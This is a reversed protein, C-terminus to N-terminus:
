LAPRLAHRQVVSWLERSADVRQRTSLCAACGWRCLVHSQLVTRYQVPMMAVASSRWADLRRCPTETCNAGSTSPGKTRSRRAVSGSESDGARSVTLVDAGAGLVRPCVRVSKSPPMRSMATGFFRVDYVRLRTLCAPWSRWRPGCTCACMYMHGTHSRM